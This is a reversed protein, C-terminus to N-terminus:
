PWVGWKVGLITSSSLNGIKIWVTEERWEEVSKTSDLAVAAM